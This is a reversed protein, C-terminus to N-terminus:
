QFTMYFSHDGEQSHVDHEAPDKNKSEFQYKFDMKTNAVRKKKFGLYISDDDVSLQKKMNSVELFLVWVTNRMDITVHAASDTVLHTQKGVSVASTVPFPDSTM